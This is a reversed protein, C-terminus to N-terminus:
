VDTDYPLADSLVSIRDYASRQKLKIEDIAKMAFVTACISLVFNFFIFV